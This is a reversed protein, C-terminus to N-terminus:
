PVFVKLAMKVLLETRQKIRGATWDPFAGIDRNLQLSSGTFVSKKAVFQKNGVKGNDGPGFITLNGLTHKVKELTSDQQAPELSQPYVHELTTNSFDFVRTKDTCRPIGQAGKGYWKLHDELTILLYRINTNGKGPSFQTARLNTEFVADPVSKALLAVLEGRLEGTAYAGPKDRIKKAHKLYIDTMPSAHANGITKYRFVFREICAVIEAFKKQDLLRLSLLLPMANTHKLHVVLLRLRERDWAELQSLDEYPWDGDGITDLRTFELDM